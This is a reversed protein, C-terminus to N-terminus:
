RRSTLQQGPVPPPAKGAALKEALHRECFSYHGTRPEPCGPEICRQRIKPDLHRKM